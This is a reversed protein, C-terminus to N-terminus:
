PRRSLRSATPAGSGHLDAAEAYAVAALVSRGARAADFRRGIWTSSCPTIASNARLGFATM